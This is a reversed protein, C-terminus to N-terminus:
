NTRFSLVAGSATGAATSVVVQYFYQTKTALTSLRASVAVPAIALTSGLASAPLATKPTANTLASSSTGWLFYYSGAMGQTNVWANLTTNPTSVASVPAALATPASLVTYSQSAIESAPLGPVASIARVTEDEAVMFPGAYATSATTPATGNTTYYIKAGTTGDAISVLQAAPYVGSRPSIVPIAPTITETLGFSSAAYTSNGAYTALIYHQGVSLPAVSFTAFGASSLPLTAVTKLDISLVVNGQPIGTGTVPTVTVSFIMNTGTVAPNANSLMSTLTPAGPKAGFAFDAVFGTAFNQSNFVTKYANATVPFDSSGATGVVYVQASGGLAVQTGSDYGDGGFYTSYVLASGAPNLETLFANSGENFAANNASQYANGTVPFDTSYATGTLYVDGSSDLALGKVLDRGSGGLYTSYVLATGTPNMKTVFGNSLGAAANITKQFAGSTVPYNSEWTQGALYANGASDVALGNGVDSGYSNGSGGLYTSYLLKTATPNLETLTLDSYGSKAKNTTQYAGATVPYDTSIASGSVYADGSADIAVLIPTEGGYEKSGGLYTSYLLATATPNIKTIFENWGYEAASNNKTQFVGATVPFTTSETAGAVYVDGASDLALSYPNDSINGGLYTSYVLATGGPNLKALFGTPAGSSANNTKQIVGATVPFTKSTTTGAVYANGSKDVAIAVGAAGSGLFTSYALATGSPNLKTVFATSYTTQYAGTTVPYDTSETTGTIYANGNVDLAMAAMLDENSGGLLTSYVLTPDIVLPMKHDYRGLAFGVSNDALLTFKGRVQRRGGDVPQYVVPKHFAIAADGAGIVLNGGKDLSLKDSGAFHLRIRSPDAGAALAFDYELQRRNGYYVLDVGPYVQSYRVRAYSPLNTKAEAPDGDVFYNTVGPLREEGDVAAGPNGGALQMRVSQSKNGSGHVALVAEQGTLFLQYGPGRSVFRVRGDTQGRNAEFRLPLKGYNEMMQAKASKRTGGARGVSPAKAAQGTGNLGVTQPSGFAADTIDVVATLAGAVTPKFSVTIVCSAGAAISTGCTNTQSFSTANTGAIKIGQGTGNLALATTGKNTVTTTQKAATSGVVTTPFFMVNSSLGVTTASGSLSVTQPSGAANDAVSLAATFSGSTTPKFSVTINCTAGAAVSTGCTNTQGFQAAGTGTISIGKGTGTLTLAATGSNTLVVPSLSETTGVATTSFSASQASLGAIPVAPTATGSLPVSQPSLFANDAIVVSATLAGTAAPKFTVTITCSAGAAVSTGCTNTESFSTAGTGTIKIGEGTGNLVLASKGTNKLTITQAPDAKGQMVSAFTLAGPSLTVLAATSVPWANVVNAVNLSGLGSARDYGAVAAYGVLIGAYDTDIVPYCEVTSFLDSNECPVYNGGTDVDNFYCSSTTKVTESKCNAWSQVAGLQYLVKNPSGQAAGAKQNILAMVGAMAPSAVSTGGVEQAAPEETASYACANGGASVCILYASGLFGNSAFFSVDPLDRLGDAPIGPAGAQWSPKAYGGSCTQPNGQYSVTCSSRGGGGGVTDSLWAIDVGYDQYISYSNNLVFNCASEGDTVPAVGLYAADAALSPWTLSNACTSNWPVEPVYGLASAGTTSSNAASWYTTPAASWNLDTGGVATDYTTSALGNVQLGFQAAYPIGDIADFGQDCAASGADGSAVFVAIGESAATQWLNNYEINGTNGLATECSGYSVNLIPATKHNVVYSESLYLPDTTPTAASSTVLVINAGKAIAGSWEVDLSNEVLDGFCSGDLSQCTGPDSNTIIVQPAKAPLGFAKRFAAIDALVVNSTGAIAVTQGTGDIPTAAQWLPLVNYIKAFDYPAVDEVAAGYGSVTSFDAKVGRGALSELQVGADGGVRRWGGDKTDFVVPKGMRHLPRAFFNHLAKVGVVVPTLASPIRPDSMNAIHKEGKVDLNHIEVHFCNEVQAATGSFRVSLRDKSVEDIAFGHGRLWNLIADVDSLAPGFREGVEEPSLWHHYNQSNPDQQSAVFGDFAAQEQPGRRLVLVLDGMALDPSVRGRDFEARAAPHVNGALSVLRSEDISEVIRVPNPVAEASNQARLAAPFIAFGCIFSSALAFRSLFRLLQM